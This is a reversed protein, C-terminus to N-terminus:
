VFLGIVAALVSLVVTILVWSGWHSAKNLCKNMRSRWLMWKNELLLNEAKRYNQFAQEYLSMALDSDYSEAKKASIVNRQADKRFGSYDIWFKGDNCTLWLNSYFKREKCEM